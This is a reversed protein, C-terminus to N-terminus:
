NISNRHGELEQSVEQCDQQEAGGQCGQTHDGVMLHQPFQCGHVPPTAPLDESSPHTCLIVLCNGETVQSSAILRTFVCFINLGIRYLSLLAKM